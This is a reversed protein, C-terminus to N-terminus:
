VNKYVEIELLNFIYDNIYYLFSKFCKFYVCNNCNKKLLYNTLSYNLKVLLRM